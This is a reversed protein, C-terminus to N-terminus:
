FPAEPPLVRWYHVDVLALSRNTKRHRLLEKKRRKLQSGPVMTWNDAPKVIAGKKGWVRIGRQRQASGSFKAKVGGPFSLIVGCQSKIESLVKAEYSHFLTAM